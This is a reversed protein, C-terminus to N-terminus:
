HWSFPLAQATTGNSSGEEGALHYVSQYHIGADRNADSVIVTSFGDVEVNDPTLNSFRAINGYQFDSVHLPQAMPILAPSSLLSLACESPDIVRNLGDSFLKTSKNSETTIEQAFHFPRREEMYYHSSNTAAATTATNQQKNYLAGNEFKIIGNFNSEPATPFLLPYSSFRTGQHLTFLTGSNVSDPQPKRRRRNHGDLRKRCSRKVEDFEVLLHFRSCQQCFRQERGAVIVVPTKSHAECVKHRRHYERCKSLDAKCGDVSCSSSQAGNIAARGRKSSSSSSSSSSAPATSNAIAPTKFQARWNPNPNFDGLGNLKLDVSWETRNPNSSGAAAPAPAPAAAPETQTTVEWPPPPMKLDWEM